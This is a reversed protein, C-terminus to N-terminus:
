NEEAYKMQWDEVKKTRKWGEAACLDAIEKARKALETGPYKQQIYAWVQKYREDIAQTEYDYTPTNDAGNVLVLRTWQESQKTQENLLFYPNERNFKEWFASRNALEELSIIIGGDDWARHNIEHTQQDLFAKMTPTTKPGFFARLKNWDTTPFIMGEGQELGFGNEALSKSLPYKNMDFKNESIAQYDNETWNMQETLQYFEGEAEMRRLFRELLIFAADALPGNATGFQATVYDWAKKGSDLKKADLTRLFTALQAISAFDPSGDKPGAYIRMLAGGYAWGTHQTPSNVIIKHYPENYTLNRLTAEERNNSIDGTGEVLTNEAIQVLVKGSKNPEERLNLKDVTVIYLILAPKAASPTPSSTDDKKNDQKCAAFTVASLIITSLLAYTSKM